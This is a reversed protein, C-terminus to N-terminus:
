NRTNPPVPIRVPPRDYLAEKEKQVSKLLRRLKKQQKKAKKKQKKQRGKARAYHAVHTLSLLFGFVGAAKLLGKADRM